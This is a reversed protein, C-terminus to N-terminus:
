FLKSGQLWFQVRGRTNDSDHDNADRGPNSGLRQALSARVAIDGPRSWTLGVGAGSLGYTNRIRTNAGEWGPWPDRHLRIRGHDVFASLRLDRLFDYRYELNVLLGEDGAAEGVPYARVGFPGGLVFKESSDLNRSAAQGLFGAYLSHGAGLNQLRALSLTAKAYGGHTRAALADAALDAPDRGLDLRGVAFSLGASNLGGGGLDDRSDSALGFALLDARKDSTPGAITENFFKRRDLAVTGSLNFARSRIFPYQAHATATQADGRAELAEFECCLRYTTQSVAVGLRLGSPGAPVQYALRQYRSGSSGTARFSLLDGLGLPDNLYVTGGLRARGTFKNGHNDAELIASALPGESIDATLDTTGLETGPSLVARVEVGPLDNLLLLGRDLGSATIPRDAPVADRLTQEIIQPRLRLTTALKLHLAGLKGELVTIEVVGDRIEQAPVYARAVFYGRERYIRTIVDAARQLDALSRAAGTFASLHPLLDSEQFASARTVRFARVEFRAGDPARLSPRAPEEVAPLGPAQPGPTPVRDRDLDRQLSGADPRAQAVAIGPVALGALAAVALLAALALRTTIM